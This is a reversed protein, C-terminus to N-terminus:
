LYREGEIADLKASVLAMAEAIARPDQSALTGEFYALLQGATERREGIFSEYCREARAILAQNAAQERPHIKLAALAARREQVEGDDLGEGDHIVVQRTEGTAPVTVDVELLGSVDYTFRCDIVIEGAARPPVAIDVSGLKINAAVTRAEGQYIGFEVNRQQPHATQFRHVRSAPLVTNRELIPAFLGNHIAGTHDREMVDVGLSYPCVDTLRIEALDAQREKLGAQVAAGLAVAHDPHVAANPFRAFMRTVAKRIIPMRTAGGVMVIESMDEARIKSDRMARLVPERLRELLPGAATEFEEATIQTSFQQDRWVIEFNAAEAESLARRTREAAARVQETLKPQAAGLPLNLRAKALGAIVENFDEGGLRNDGASARVEIVGDFIEVISVDFTGGGLDFVLFPDRDERDVIGYALAAATPENVLREVNLGALEGARRTAKRQRDSFYAPVTIVAGTVPEGYHREADARLSRLVLASLEEASFRTRGLFIPKQTGMLRKFATATREPHVSQRERAAMGVLVDGDDTLSVASPTLLDGLSNPILEPRDDGWRAVASNTTGLDIGVIVIEGV